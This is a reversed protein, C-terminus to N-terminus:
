LQLPCMLLSGTVAPELLLSRQSSSGAIPDEEARDRGVFNVELPGSKFSSRM